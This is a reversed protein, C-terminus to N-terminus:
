RPSIDPAPVRGRVLPWTSWWGTMEGLPCITAKARAGSLIMMTLWFPVSSISNPVSNPRTFRVSQDAELSLSRNSAEPSMKSSSRRYM